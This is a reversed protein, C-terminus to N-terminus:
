KKSTEKWSFENNEIYGHNEVKGGGLVRFVFDQNISDMEAQTIPCYVKLIKIASTDVVTIEYTNKTTPCYPITDMVKDVIENIRSRGSPDAEERILLRVSKKASDPDMNDYNVLYSRMFKSYLTDRIAFLTTDAMWVSDDRIYEFVDVLSSDYNQKPNTQLYLIEADVILKMNERGLMTERDIKEWVSKPYLITGLLLLLLIVILIEYILSGKAKHLAM